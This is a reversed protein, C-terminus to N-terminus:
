NLSQFRLDHAPIRTHLPREPEEEELSMYGRGFWESSGSPLSLLAPQDVKRPLRQLLLAVTGTVIAVAVLLAGFLSKKMRAAGSTRSDYRDASHRHNSEDGRASRAFAGRGVTDRAPAPTSLVIGVPLEPEAEKATRPTGM